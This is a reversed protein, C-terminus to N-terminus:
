LLRVYNLLFYMSQSLKINKSGNKEFNHPCKVNFSYM